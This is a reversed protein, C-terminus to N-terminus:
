LDDHSVLVYSINWTGLLEGYTVLVYSINWIGLLDGYTVLVYSIDNNALRVELINTLYNEARTWNGLAVSENGGVTWGTM